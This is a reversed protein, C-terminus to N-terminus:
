RRLAALLLRPARWLLARWANWAGSERMARAHERVNARYDGSAGGVTFVGVVDDIDRVLGARRAAMLFKTDAAIRYTADYPGLRRHAGPKVLTGASHNRILLSGRRPSEFRVRGCVVEAGEAQRMLAEVGAPLLLDDCGLVVYAEGAMLGLAKNLADYIGADPESIWYAIERDFRELLALTGDTSAGDVIVHEVNPWTQALVSRLCAELTAAGNRVVTIVTVLPFAAADVPARPPGGAHRWGGTRPQPRVDTM